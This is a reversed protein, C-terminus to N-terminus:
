RMSRPPSLGPGLFEEAEFIMFYGVDDGDEEIWGVAGDDALAEEVLGRRRMRRSVELAGDRSTLIASRASRPLVVM